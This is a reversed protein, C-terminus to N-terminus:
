EGDVSNGEGDMPAWVGGGQPMRTVKGWPHWPPPALRSGVVTNNHSFGGHFNVDAGIICNSVVNDSASWQFALHRINQMESDELRCFYARAFRVYGNGDPGKNWAGNIDLKRM